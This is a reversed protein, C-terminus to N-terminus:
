SKLNGDENKKATHLVALTEESGRPKLARLGRENKKESLIKGVQHVQDARIFAMTDRDIFGLLLNAFWVELTKNNTQKLGISWGMLSTSLFIATDEWRIVGTKHVKRSVMKEYSLDDPTGKYATKSRQYCEAPVKMGLAEHPREHNFAHRWVDIADQDCHLGQLEISMDRHMREHAGNDEPHGPRGRELNIGLSVWWASLRSLGLLAQTHAFPAGNDSRITKPLGYKEFLEEFCKRVTEGRANPLRKVLLLYRSKEDRITLPECRVGEKDYWWGKFDITWVDNPAEAKIGSHIRGGQKAKFRKRKKICGAHELIRKFSSESAARGHKKQYLTRIKRPGWFPYAQQLAIIECVERELLAAPHQKPKRSKEDLGNLGDQLMREKWKYGTKTSIGYEKCLERFNTAQISKIAFEKRQDMPKITKWPM